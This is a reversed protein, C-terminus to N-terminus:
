ATRSRRKQELKAAAWAAVLYLPMEILMWSPVPPMMYMTVVGAVLSFAGVIMAVTMLRDASIRAAVGGGVFAQSLHAVIIILLAIVPLSGIYEAFGEKDNSDVGQPMPYLAKNMIVFAMNAAMGAIMGVVVAIVNRIM